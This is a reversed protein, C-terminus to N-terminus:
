NPGERKPGQGKPGADGRDQGGSHPSKVGRRAGGAGSKSERLGWRPNWFGDLLAELGCKSKEL